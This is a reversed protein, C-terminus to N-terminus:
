DIRHAKRMGKPQGRRADKSLSLVFPYLQFDLFLHTRFPIHSHRLPVPLIM